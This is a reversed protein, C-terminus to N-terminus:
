LVADVDPTRKFFADPINKLISPDVSFDKCRIVVIAEEFLPYSLKGFPNLFSFKLHTSSILKPKVRVDIHTPVTYETSDRTRHFFIVPM